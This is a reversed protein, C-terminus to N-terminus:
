KEQDSRAASEFSAQYYQEIAKHLVNPIVWEAGFLEALDYKKMAPLPNVAWVAGDALAEKRASEPLRLLPFYAGLRIGFLVATEPHVLAPASYVKYQCAVPLPKKLLPFLEGGPADLQGITKGLQAVDSPMLAALDAGVPMKWEKLLTRIGALVKENAPHTRFREALVAPTVPRRRVCKLIGFGILVLAMIGVLLWELANFYM